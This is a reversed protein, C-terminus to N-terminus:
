TALLKQSYKIVKKAGFCAMDVPYYIETAKYFTDTLKQLLLFLYLSNWPHSSFKKPILDM